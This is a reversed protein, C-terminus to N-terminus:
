RCAPSQRTQERSFAVCVVLVREGREADHYSSIGRPPRAELSYIFDRHESFAVTVDFGKRPDRVCRRRDVLNTM